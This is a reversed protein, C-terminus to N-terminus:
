HPNFIRMLIYFPAGAFKVFAKWWCPPSCVVVSMDAASNASLLAARLAEIVSHSKREWSRSEKLRQTESKVHSISQLPDCLPLDCMHSTVSSRHPGLLGLQEHASICCTLFSSLFIYPHSPDNKCNCAGRGEVLHEAYTPISSRAGPSRRQDTWLRRYDCVPFSRELFIMALIKCRLKLMVRGARHSVCMLVASSINTFEIMELASIAILWILMLDFFTSMYNIIKFLPWVNCEGDEWTIQQKTENLIHPKKSRKRFLCFFSVPFM